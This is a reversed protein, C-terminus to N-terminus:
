PTPDIFLTRNCRGRAWPRFRYRKLGGRKVLQRVEKTVDVSHRYLAKNMERRSGNKPERIFDRLYIAGGKGLGRDHLRGANAQVWKRRAVGKHKDASM